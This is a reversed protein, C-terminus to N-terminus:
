VSEGRERRNQRTALSFLVATLERRSRRDSVRFVPVVGDMGGTRIATRVAETPTSEGAVLLTRELAHLESLSTLEYSTGVNAATYGRIDVLVVDAVAALRKMTPRWTDDFCPYEHVEYRGDLAPRGSVSRLRTELDAMSRIFYRGMLFSAFRLVGEPSATSAAIDPGAIVHIEGATLWTRCVTHLLRDSAAANGFTRLFLLQLPEVHPRTFAGAVYPALLIVAEAPLFLAWFGLSTGTQMMLIGANCAAGASGALIFALAEPSLRLLRKALLVAALSGVLIGYGLVVIITLLMTVAKPSQFESDIMM